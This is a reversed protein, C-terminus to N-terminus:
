VPFDPLASLYEFKELEFDLASCYTALGNTVALFPARLRLNYRAAQEFTKQSLAIKPSKCEILLWPKLEVDFVVLDCRRTLGNFQIAVESRIRHAPYKKEELLYLLILQRLLEEPTLCVEKKRIPDFVFATEGSKSLKLRPQFQLFDLELLM